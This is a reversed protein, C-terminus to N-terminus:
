GVQTILRSDVDFWGHRREIGNGGLVMLDYYRWREMPVDEASLWPKVVTYSEGKYCQGLVAHCHQCQYVGIIRRGDVMYPTNMAKITIRKGCCDCKNM